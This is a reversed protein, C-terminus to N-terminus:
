CDTVVFSKPSRENFQQNREDKANLLKARIKGSSGQSFIEKNPTRMADMMATSMMVLDEATLTLTTGNISVEFQNM